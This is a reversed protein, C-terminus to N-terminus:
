AQHLRQWAPIPISKEFATMAARPNKTTFWLPKPPYCNLNIPPQRIEFVAASIKFNLLPIPM